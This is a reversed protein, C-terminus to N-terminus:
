PGRRIVTALSLATVTDRVGPLTAIDEWIQRVREVSQAELRILLDFDGSLVDCGAVEPILRLAQLVDIGRMRDKRYVLLIASVLDIHSTPKGRTITYGQIFGLRELREIRQRVANRSLSVRKGIEAHSIRGNRSLDGLIKEDTHDISRREM